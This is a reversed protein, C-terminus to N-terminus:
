PKNEKTRYVGSTIHWGSSILIWVVGLVVMFGYPALFAAGINILGRQHFYVGRLLPGMGALVLAVCVLTLRPMFREFYAMPAADRKKDAEAQPNLKGDNKIKQAELYPKRRQYVANDIMSWVWFFFAAVLGLGFVLGLPVMLNRGFVVMPAVGCFVGYLLWGLGTLAAVLLLVIAGPFVFLM